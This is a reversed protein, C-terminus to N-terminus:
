DMNKRYEFASIGYVQKFIRAYTGRSDEGCAAFVQKITINKDALKEKIHEVKCLKHYNGPTIGSHQKFLCYMQSVSMNIYDALAKPDYEEKWQRDLFEMARAIEPRGQFINKVVGVFVVFALKDNSRIPYLYFDMVVKEYPKKKIIGRAVLDELPATVDSVFSLNTDGRFAKQIGEKQNLEENCVPDNLLNYKGILLDADPIGNLELFARNIFVATGDPAFIELPLPFIEMFQFMLEKNELLMQFTGAISDNIAALHELFQKSNISNNKGSIMPNNYMSCHCFPM